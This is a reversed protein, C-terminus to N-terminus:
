PTAQGIRTTVAAGSYDVSVMAKQESAFGHAHGPEILVVNFKRQSLMGPFTGVRQNITLARQRNNWKINIRAFANQEYGYTLGDDEYLTFNGDAGGYIYLTVPDAPKEGVYQVAPGFPIISGARVYVPLSDFPAPADITQGGRLQAGTWFDYWTAGSPLYVSRSRAKYTTVPAVLLAPGFMYQDPIVRATKDGPFDMVLPRMITANDQTVAGALSYIYPLLAYRLRDFKLESQYIASHQDGLNFMERLQQQGHVRLVPCFTSFQFWRSNLELWSDKDEATPNIAYKSQMLYGGTDTTWYPMGAAAFGLGAPIQKRLATWTSTVDGSWSLAGYRQEGMFGSRTLVYVRQDPAVSRQGEYLAKATMLAYGNQMRAGSGMGTPTMHAAYTDQAPPSVIEPETADMWWADIGKSFLQTNVQEWFLKRAGAQFPDVYAYLREDRRIGENLTSQFLYGAKNLANFNDTGEYFKGWISIMIHAHADHVTKIMGKPDPYKNPDFRHSGWDNVPETTWYQWDQVINDFPIGRSRFGAVVELLQQQNQYRDRSQWLGFAWQPLMKAQGTLTRFGAIVQDLAPGAVFYYDIGDGVNSWLSTSTDPVPLPTKWLFRMVNSREGDTEIKLSYKKGAELHAHIQDYEPLWDQRWHEIVLKDDLWVKIGGNSYAQFQYDGSVPAVFSGVTRTPPHLGHTNRNGGGGQPAAFGIAASTITTELAGNARNVNGTTMGGPEGTANFLQTDPIPEFQRLDGFRTYSTNDWLLGYGRSSILSPVTIVTNRQWLDIDTGKLDVIGLQLQGLGHLSEDENGQWQQRVHYTKEGLVEAAELTRGDRKEALIVQGAADLFTVAGTTNDVRAQLKATHLTTTDPTTTVRWAVNTAAAPLVAISAHDFFNRDKAYAVRIINDARVELKLFNGAIPMVIGDRQTEANVAAAQAIPTSDITLTVLGLMALRAVADLLKQCISKM